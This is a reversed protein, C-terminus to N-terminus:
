NCDDIKEGAIANVLENDGIIILQLKEYKAGKLELELTYQEIKNGEMSDSMINQSSIGLSSFVCFVIICIKKELRTNVM